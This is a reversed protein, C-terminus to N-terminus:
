FYDYGFASTTSGNAIIQVFVQAGCMSGTNALVSTITNVTCAQGVAGVFAIWTQTFTDFYWGRVTITSAATGNPVVVRVNGLGQTILGGRKAGIRLIRNAAPPTTNPDNEPTLASGGLTGVWVAFSFSDQSRDPSKVDM